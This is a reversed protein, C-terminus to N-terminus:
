RFTRIPRVSATSGQSINVFSGTSMDLAMSKIGGSSSDGTTSWYSTASLTNVNSRNNYLLLLEISCPLFWDAFTTGNNTVSYSDVLDAASTTCTSIIMASEQAGKGIYGTYSTINGTSNCWISTPDSSGGNWTNPAAEFYLGTTNGLTSPTAFIKGGGPGLDGVAYTLVPASPGAPGTAGTAGTLGNPGVPGAPGTPGTPGTQGTAGTLGAVGQTGTEGRPGQLGQEGRPGNAGTPGSVNWTLRSETKSCKGSSSLRMSSTKKNVCATITSTSEAFVQNLTWSSVSAVVFGSIFIAKSKFRMVENHCIFLYLQFVTRIVFKAM